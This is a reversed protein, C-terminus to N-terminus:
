KGNNEKKRVSRMKKMEKAAAIEEDPLSKGGQATQNVFSGKHNEEKESIYQKM